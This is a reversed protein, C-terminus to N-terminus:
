FNQDFDAEKLRPTPCIEVLRKSARACLWGKEHETTTTHILKQRKLILKLREFTLKQGRQHSIKRLNQWIMVFNDFNVFFLVDFLCFSMESLSFSMELLCFSMWMVVVSSSFPQSQALADLLNTSIRGAGRSFLPLLPPNQAFIKFLNWIRWTPALVTRNLNCFDKIYWFKWHSLDPLICATM